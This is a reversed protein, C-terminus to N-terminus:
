YYFKVGFLLSAYYHCIIFIKLIYIYFEHSVGDIKISTIAAGPISTLLTRRLANGITVGYGRDFPEAVVKTYNGSEEVFEIDIDQFYKNSAM